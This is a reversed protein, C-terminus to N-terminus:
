AASNSSVELVVRMKKKKESYIGVMKSTITMGVIVIAVLDFAATLVAVTAVRTKYHQVEGLVATLILVAMNEGGKVGKTADVFAFMSSWNRASIESGLATHLPLAELSYSMLQFFVILALHYYTSTKRKTEKVYFSVLFILGLAAASCSLALETNSVLTVTPHLLFTNQFKAVAFCDQQSAQRAADELTAAYLAACMVGDEPDVARLLRSKKRAIGGSELSVYREGFVSIEDTQLAHMDVTPLQEFDTDLCSQYGGRSGRADWHDGNVDDEVNFSFADRALLTKTAVSKGQSSVHLLESHCDSFNGGVAEYLCTRTGTFATTGNPLRTSVEVPRVLVASQCNATLCRCAIMVQRSHGKFNRQYDNFNYFVEGVHVDPDAAVRCDTNPDTLCRKSSSSSLFSRYVNSLQGSRPASTTHIGSTPPILSTSHSVTSRWREFSDEFAPPDGRGNYLPTGSVCLLFLSLFLHSM